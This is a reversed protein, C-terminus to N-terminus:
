KCNIGGIELLDEGNLIDSKKRKLRLNWYTNLIALEEVVM